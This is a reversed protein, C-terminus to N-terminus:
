RVLILFRKSGAGASCGLEASRGTLVAAYLKGAACHETITQCRSRCLCRGSVPKSLPQRACWLCSPRWQWSDACAGCRCLARKAEGSCRTPFRSRVVAARGDSMAADDKSHSALYGLLNKAAESLKGSAETPFHLPVLVSAALETRNQQQFHWIVCERRFSCTDFVVAEIECPDCGFDLLVRVVQSCAHSRSWCRWRGKGHTHLTQRQGRTPWKPSRDFSSTWSTGQLIESRERFAALRPSSESLVAALDSFVEPEPM